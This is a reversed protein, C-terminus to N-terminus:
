SMEKRAIPFGRLRQTSCRRRPHFDPLRIMRITTTGEVPVAHLSTHAIQSGRDYVHDNSLDIIHGYNLDNISAHHDVQSFHGIGRLFILLSVLVAYRFIMTSGDTLSLYSCNMWPCPRSTESNTRSRISRSISSLSCYGGIPQCRQLTVRSFPSSLFSFVTAVHSAPCSGGSAVISTLPTQLHRM